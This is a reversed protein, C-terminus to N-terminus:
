VIIGAYYGAGNEDESVTAHYFLRCYIIVDNADGGGHATAVFALSRLSWVFAMRRINVHLLAYLCGHHFALIMHQYRWGGLAYSIVGTHTERLSSAPLLVIVVGVMGRVTGYSLGVYPLIGVFGGNAM